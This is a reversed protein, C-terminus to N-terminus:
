MRHDELFVRINEVTHFKSESSGTKWYSDQLINLHNVDESRLNFNRLYSIGGSQIHSSEDTSLRRDAKGQNQQHIIKTYMKTAGVYANRAAKYPSTTLKLTKASKLYHERRVHFENEFVSLTDDSQLKALIADNIDSLRRRYTPLELDDDAAKTYTTSAIKYAEMSAQYPGFDRKFEKVALAYLNRANKYRCGYLDLSWQGEGVHPLNTCDTQELDANTDANTDASVMVLAFMSLIILKM